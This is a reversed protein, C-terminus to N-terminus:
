CILKIQRYPPTECRGRQRSRHSTVSASRTRTRTRHILGSGSADNWEGPKAPTSMACAAHAMAADADPGLMARYTDSNTLVAGHGLDSPFATATAAIDANFQAGLRRM